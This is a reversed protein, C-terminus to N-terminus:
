KLVTRIRLQVIITERTLAQITLTFLFTTNQRIVPNNAGHIVRQKELEKQSIM